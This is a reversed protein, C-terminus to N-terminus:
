LQLFRELEVLEQQLITGLYHRGDNTAQSCNPLSDTMQYSDILHIPLENNIPMDGASLQKVVKRTREALKATNAGRMSGESCIDMSHHNSLATVSSIHKSCLELTKSLGDTSLASKYAGTISADCLHHPTQILLM